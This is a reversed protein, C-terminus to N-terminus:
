GEKLVNLRKASCDRKGNKMVKKQTISSSSSSSSSLLFFFSSSCFREVKSEKQLLTIDREREGDREIKTYREMVRDRSREEEKEREM